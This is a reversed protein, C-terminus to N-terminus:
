ERPGVYPRVNSIYVRDPVAMRAIKEEGSVINLRVGEERLSRLIALSESYDNLRIFDHHNLFLWDLLPQTKEELDSLRWVGEETVIGDTEEDVEFSFLSISFHNKSVYESIAGVDRSLVSLRGLSSENAEGELSVRSEREYFQWTQAPTLLLKNLSEPIEVGGNTLKSEEILGEPDNFWFDVRAVSWALERGHLAPHVVIGRPISAQHSELQELLNSMHAEAAEGEDEIMAWLREMAQNMLASLEDIEERGIESLPDLSMLVLIDGESFKSQEGVNGWLTTVAAEFEDTFLPRSVAFRHRGSDDVYTLLFQGFHESALKPLWIACTIRNDPHKIAGGVAVGRAAKWSRIASTYARSTKRKQSLESLSPLGSDPNLPSETSAEDRPHFTDLMFNEYAKEAKSLKELSDPSPDKQGFPHYKSGGTRQQAVRSPIRELNNQLLLTENPLPLNMLTTVHSLTDSRNRCSDNEQLINDITSGVDTEGRETEINYRKPETEESFASSLMFLPAISLCLVGIPYLFTQYSLTNM